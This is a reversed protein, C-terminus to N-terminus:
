GRDVISSPGGIRSQVDDGVALEMQIMSYGTHSTTDEQASV